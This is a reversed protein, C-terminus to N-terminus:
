KITVPFTAREKMSGEGLVDVYIEWEGSMHLLMGEIKFLGDELKSIKPTTNMGHGHSPMDAEIEISETFEAAEAKERIQVTLNFHKNKPIPSPYELVSVAFSQGDTIINPNVFENLAVPAM